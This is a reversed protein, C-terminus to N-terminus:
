ACSDRAAPDPKPKDITREITSICLPLTEILLVGPLPVSTATSRGRSIVTEEGAATWAQVPAQWAQIQDCSGM